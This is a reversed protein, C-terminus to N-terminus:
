VPTDAADPLSNPKTDEDTIGLRARESAILERSLTEESLDSEPMIANALESDRAYHDFEAQKAALLNMMRDDVSDPILLRHVQVTRLQGMRRARAIAQTELSPKIQPECFIVVSAAQINLGTGAAQVQGVLVAPGEAERFQDVLAQRQTASTAGTIPGIAIPGLRETVLKLNDLFYSFVIVKQGSEAAETTLELLRQLKKPTAGATEPIFGARRMGMLNKAFASMYYFDYDAGEWDCYEEVEILDPLEALVDRANRRLYIPAVEKRFIEPGAILAYRDLDAALVPDLLNALQVFEEIRNEMPTGSMLMVYPVRRIWFALTKTRGSQPNKVYQAEDVVVTDLKIGLDEFNQSLSKLTDFTTLGVGGSKAWKTLSERAAPGHMKIVSLSSRESFERQWNVIVSAPCVVLGHRGGEHSRQSLVAIAQITKGLGMEDGLIVRKQTLAFKAGFTQYKRLTADVLELNLEREEIRDILEKANVWDGTVRRTSSLDDLVSYYDGPRSRFDDVPQAKPAEPAPALASMASSILDITTQQALLGSMQEVVQVLENKRSRSTLTWRFRSSVSEADTTLSRLDDALAAMKLEKGRLHRKVGEVDRLSSLIEIDERQLNEIDFTYDTSGAIAEFVGTAIAKLEEATAESVGPLAALQKAEAHHLSAMSTFGYSRLTEMRVSASAIEQASEIPLEAMKQLVLGTNAKAVRGKAATVSSQELELVRELTNVAEVAATFTTHLSRFDIGM